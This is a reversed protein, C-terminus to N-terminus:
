SLLLPCDPDAFYSADSLNVFHLEQLCLSLGGCIRERCSVCIYFSWKWQKESVLGYRWVLVLISCLIFRPCKCVGPLSLSNIQTIKTMLSTKYLLGNDDDDDDDNNDNYNDNNDDGDDDDNDDEGEDEKEDNDHDTDNKFIMYLTRYTSSTMYFLTM